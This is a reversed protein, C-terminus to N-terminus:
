KGLWYTLHVGVSSGADGSIDALVNAHLTVKATPAFSLGLLLDIRTTRIDPDAGPGKAKDLHSIRFGGSLSVQDNVAFSLNPELYLLDGPDVNGRGNVTRPATYSYGVTLALVVPDISRYATLGANWTKGYVLKETNSSGANEIFATEIFGLVAPTANEQSFRHNVGGVFNRWRCTNTSAATDSFGLTRTESYVGTIRSYVETNSTLGYRIGLRSIVRDQNYLMFDNRVQNSYTVGFNLQVTKEKTLLDEIMLPLDALCPEALAIVCLCAGRKWIGCLM